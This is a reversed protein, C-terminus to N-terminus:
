ISLQSNWNLTTKIFLIFQVKALSIIQPEPDSLAQVAERPVYFDLEVEILSLLATM